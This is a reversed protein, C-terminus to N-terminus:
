RTREKARRRGIILSASGASVLIVLVGTWLWVDDIGTYALGRGPRGGGGKNNNREIKPPILSAEPTDSPTTTPTITPTPSPTESPTESPTPSPSESPTPSPTPEVVLTLSYHSIACPNDNNPNCGDGDQDTITVTKQPPNVVVFDLDDGAKVCYGSILYGDPATVTVSLQEGSVDVKDGPCVDAQAYADTTTAALLVVFLFLAVLVAVTAWSLRRM